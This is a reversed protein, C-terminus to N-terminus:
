IKGEEMEHLNDVSVLDHDATIREIPPAPHGSGERVMTEVRDSLGGVTPAEFLARLPLEVAFATRLKSMVQTALLSHGGLEFFNDNAGVRDVGLVESWIRAVIEEARSRPAVYGVEGRILDPAPLAQRDVKRNATLPLAHLMVFHSPVMYEPLCRLVAGRLDLANLESTEHLVVYAVLRKEGPRDERAVVAAQRVGAAGTLVAEVEGLEIRYGRIKVQDDSRGLYEINGSPRYRARDGTRYMRAGCGAYPNPVFREATLDPRNLYGRALGAGAIYLEGAVGIPLPELAADLIHVQTNWIPRGIPVEFDPCAGDASLGFYTASITAETPGYTNLWRAANRGPLRCWGALQSQLVKEGGVIVLRVCDPVSCASNELFVSWQHWLATPLDLISIAHTTIYNSFTEGADLLHRPRIFITAGAVLSPFIEEVSTDFNLAAFQLVRDSATLECLRQHATTHNLLGGHQLLVGKPPGTSGSTYIAYALDLASSANIPDTAPSRDLVPWDRDLCFTAVGVCRLRDALHLQTLVLAPAADTLMLRLRQTPDDPDLPLYAGGAKLIGLVAIIMELSREVCIGVLVDPGVGLGRLYHALRNSRQNLEAYSLQAGEHVVAIAEPTRRAQAAFLEHACRDRPYTVDTTNWAHVLQHREGATLLTLAGIRADPAAVIGELLERFHGAMREITGADFLDTAYEIAGKLRDAAETFNFTLDFKASVAPSALRELTLRDFELADAPTNQLALMVQFLPSQSLDRGPNLEDILHEFPADQHAYADLATRRVQDLLMAFSPDAKLHMRLVLTNVFFGILPEIESRTRNAIPTGVCIDRQGSYRSLLVSLAAVLTMFLTAGARRSLERLGQTLETGLVFPHHAGRHSQVAPRPRDTPLQLLEPAGSLQEKWYAVQRELVEGSLYARQWHAFDAYQIPLEPLGPARADTYARYLAAVERVLVGMSWADAVIHHLTFLAVHEEEGLRLLTARILPGTALDFPRMAEELALAQTRREREEDEFGSLDAVSLALSLEPEIVQVPTGGVTEFRTRLAEHRRVMENLSAHLGAINLAGRLRVAEAINYFANEPELQDLFWLRQQAFSPALAAGRRVRPIPPAARADTRQAAAIRQSFEAVSPAEFLTRLPLEIAFRSRVKSILQTALLSHGGVAFFNDNRGVRELRLVDLWIGAVVQEVGPRPPVYEAEGYDLEPAPLAKRDVKGNATLPLADLMVFASPVMYDPLNERVHARLASRDIAAGAARVVYAVLQKEGRVDERAVVAAERVGPFAILVSEVESPEVRMGRIKVQDDIRGLLRFNGDPLMTALDGTRYLRDKGNRSLPNKIFAAETLEPRGFYGLSRYPTRVYLEGISDPACPELGDNLLIAQAGPMPRGIPVFGQTVPVGPLAYWFKVMTTETAGYLNILRIRRGFVSIWANADTPLLAEGSLLVFRLQPFREPSLPGNLLLRFVTPVCHILTIRAREIWNAFAQPEFIERSPPICATGGCCLPCFVDRLYADFTPVILQSVRSCADKSLTAIEWQIFHALSGTRGVVAKPEGTSGSTFYIYCPDDAEVTVTPKATVQEGSFYIRVHDERRRPEGNGPQDVYLLHRLSDCHGALAILRTACSTDAILWRPSVLGLQNRLIANPRSADITVFVCGAKMVGLLAVIHSIPDDVMIAVVSARPADTSVLFNAVQNARADLVAYSAEREEWSVAVAEAHSGAAREFLEVVSLAELPVALVADDLDTLGPEIKNWEALVRRREGEGLLTVKDIRVQPTAVVCELLTGFNEALREITAADFLDAAYEIRGALGEGTETFEFTLDFKSTGSQCSMPELIVGPLAIKAFPTNQLILMVQFLPSHGLDRRPNLEDVVHEFPVDQHAYADLATQRVQDLLEVFQPDGELRLRLVLTNVFLGILGEIESRTRSAIATGLCIDRQGSWRALLVSLAGALTMFLTTGARRSLERLGRTLEVSLLFHHRAGRHSQIAPRPRDTPLQLLEPAGSLQKNWYAFQRELVEGSLYARQWSAFDAYQVPLEPLGAGGGEVHARYLAAVERVLVGMSWGDAVIHHVTFLAVHDDDALRLLSARMLPGRTLDFPRQAEVLALAQARSEREEAELGSLETVPLALSLEPEIVQVPTGDVAEFRTRLVEHRRLMENLSAHLGAVDLAGRLRLAGPINYFPSGPELQDLFWLRQQAFSPVLAGTRQVRTIPPPALAGAGQTMAIRESLEAVSPAEFLARLPLEIAFRSRLMSIMQTALLSHGGLHFFDDHRGIQEVGLVESWLGGVLEELPTRPAGGGKSDRDSDQGRRWSWIPSLGNAQFLEQARRRQIKGSTTRPIAGIAVFLVAAVDFLEHQEALAARIEEVLGEAFAGDRAVVEQIVVLESAPAEELAFVACGNERFAPNLKDITAEVDQPYINRGAFIMVEKLRGSIYLEDDHVFGLDGTRLYEGAHGEIRRAFYAATEEPRNWYGLAVSPGTVWIEGVENEAKPKSTLPDVIVARHAGQLAPGASVLALADDQTVPPRVEDHWSGAKSVTLAKPLAEPHCNYNASVFLTSEALGYSPALAEARLGCASFAESFRRLTDYRVREAGNIALRLSRLDLTAKQADTVKGVCLDYAFNPAGTVTARYDSITKLWRVPQLIFSLPSFLISRCGLHLPVLIAGILGFDHYPPLWSVCVDSATMAYASESLVANALFNGHTVVVGKPESTSGSTYQLLFPEGAGIPPRSWAASEDSLNDTALWTLHRLSGAEDAEDNARDNLKEVLSANTLALKCEADAAILELRHRATGRINAPAPVAIVGAYICGLLAAVYDLGAPYVLLVRDGRSVYKAIHAALSKARHALEVFTVSESPDSGHRLFTFAQKDRVESASSAWHELIELLTDLHALQKSGGAQGPSVRTDEARPMAAEVMM